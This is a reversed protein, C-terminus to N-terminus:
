PLLCCRQLLPQVDCPQDEPMSRFYCRHRDPCPEAQPLDIHAHLRWVMRQVHGVALWSTSAPASRSAPATSCWCCWALGVGCHFRAMSPLIMQWPSKLSRAVIQRPDAHQRPFCFSSDAGRCSSLDRRDGACSGCIKHIEKVSHTFARDRVWTVPNRQNRTVTDCRWACFQETIGHDSRRHAVRLPHLSCPPQLTPSSALGDASNMQSPPPPPVDM